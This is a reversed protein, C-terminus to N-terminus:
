LIATNTKMPYPVSIATVISDQYVDFQQSIPSFISKLSNWTQDMGMDNRYIYIYTYLNDMYM